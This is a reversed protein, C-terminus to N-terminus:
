EEGECNCLLAFDAASDARKGWGVSVMGSLFEWAGM